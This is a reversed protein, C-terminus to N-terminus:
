ADVLLGTFGIVQVALGALRLPFLRLARGRGHLPADVAEKAHSTKRAHSPKRGIVLIAVAFEPELRCALPARALQWIDDARTLLPDKRPPVHELLTEVDRPLLADDPAGGVAGGGQGRLALRRRQPARGATGGVARPIGEVLALLVDQGIAVLHADVAFVWLRGDKHQVHVHAPRYPRRAPEPVHLREGVKRRLLLALEAKARAVVDLHRLLALRASPPLARQIAPHAPEGRGEARLRQASVLSPDQSRAM